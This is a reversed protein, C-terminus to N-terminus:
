KCLYSELEEKNRPFYVETQFVEATNNLHNIRENVEISKTLFGYLSIPENFSLIGTSGFGLAVNFCSTYEEAPNLPDIHTVVETLEKPVQYSLEFAPNPHNKLAVLYGLRCLCKITTDLIEILKADAAVDRGILVIASRQTTAQNNPSTVSPKCIKNVYEDRVRFWIIDPRGDDDYSKFYEFCKQLQLLKLVKLYRSCKIEDITVQSFATLGYYETRYVIPKLLIWLLDFFYNNGEHYVHFIIDKSLKSRLIFHFYIFCATYRTAVIPKINFKKNFLTGIFKSNVIVIDNPNGQYKM